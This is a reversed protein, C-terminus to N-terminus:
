AVLPTLIKIQRVSCNLLTEKHSISGGPSDIYVTIPDRSKHHLSIIEPTLRNVMQQDIVGQVYIARNSNPRFAPNPTIAM